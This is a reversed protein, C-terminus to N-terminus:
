SLLASGKVKRKQNWAPPRNKQRSFNTFPLATLQLRIPTATACFEWSFKTPCESRLNPEGPNLQKTTPFHFKSVESDCTLSTVTFDVWVSTNSILKEIQVGTKVRVANITAPTRISVEWAKRVLRNKYPNPANM